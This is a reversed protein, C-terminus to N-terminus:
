LKLSALPDHYIDYLSALRGLPLKYLMPLVNLYLYFFSLADLYLHYFSTRPDHLLYLFRLRSTSYPRVQMGAVGIDWGKIVEGRGLNFKFPKGSQCADFIQAACSV